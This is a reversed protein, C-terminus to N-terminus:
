IKAELIQMVEFILGGPSRFFAIRRTGFGASIETPPLLVQCGADVAKGHDRALDDTEFVAHTLGPGLPAALTDEFVPKPTLFLRTGGFELLAYESQGDPGDFTERLLLTAGLATLLRIERELDEIKLGINWLRPRM